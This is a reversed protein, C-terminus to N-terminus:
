IYKLMLEMWVWKVQNSSVVSRRNDAKRGWKLATLECLYKLHEYIGSINEIKSYEAYKTTFELTIQNQQTKLAIKPM